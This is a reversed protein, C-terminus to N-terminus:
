PTTVSKKAQNLSKKTSNKLVLTMKNHHVVRKPSTSLLIKSPHSKEKSQTTSNSSWTKPSLPREKKNPRSSKKSQKSSSNKRKWEQKASKRGGIKSTPM